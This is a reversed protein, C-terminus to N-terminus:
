KKNREKYEEILKDVLVKVSGAGRNDMLWKHASESVEITKRPM